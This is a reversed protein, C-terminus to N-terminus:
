SARLCRGGGKLAAKLISLARPGMGHLEALEHESWKALDAVSRVSAGHLARLAPGSVGPPFAAANPHTSEAM